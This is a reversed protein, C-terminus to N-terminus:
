AYGIRRAVMDAPFDAVGMFALYGSAESLADRGSVVGDKYERTEGYNGEKWHVNVRIVSPEPCTVIFLHSQAVCLHYDIPLRM